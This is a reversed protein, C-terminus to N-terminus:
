LCSLAGVIFFILIIHPFNGKESWETELSKKCFNVMAGLIECNNM